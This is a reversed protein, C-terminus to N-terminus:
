FPRAATRVCRSSATCALHRQSFYCISLESPAPGETPSSRLGCGPSNAASKSRAPLTLTLQCTNIARRRYPLISGVLLALTPLPSAISLSPKMLVGVRIRMYRNGGAAGVRTSSSASLKCFLDHAADFSSTCIPNQLHQIHM